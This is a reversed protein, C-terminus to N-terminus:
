RWGASEARASCCAVPGRRRRRCGGNGGNLGGGRSAGSANGGLGGAGGNGGLGYLFGGAGGAGGNGGAQGPQNTGGNAGAGGAGGSGGNGFFGASGGAGGNQGVGGSGGNGGNGYLWGGPGGAGGTGNVGNAGNGILPRGTLAVFPDTSAAAVVAQLPSANLAEATAYQEAGGSLLSVIQDHFAAAQASLTQYAQAHAGFLMALATSVEDAGASVLATTPFAAMANASSITSGIGALDNAAASLYEPGAIVWSM